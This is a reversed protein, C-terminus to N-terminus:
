RITFQDSVLTCPGSTSTVSHVYFFLYLPCTSWVPPVHSLFCLNMLRQTCRGSVPLVRFLYLSYVSWICPACPVSVCTCLWEPTCQASIYLVIPGSVPLVHILFLSYRSLSCPIVQDQYLFYLPIKIM